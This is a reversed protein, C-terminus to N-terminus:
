PRGGVRYVRHGGEAPPRASRTDGPPHATGFRRCAPRWGLPRRGCGRRTDWTGPRHSIWCRARPMLSYATLREASLALPDLGGDIILSAKRCAEPYRPCGTVRPKRDAARPEPTM